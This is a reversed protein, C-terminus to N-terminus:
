RDFIEISLIVGQAILFGICKRFFKIIKDYIGPLGYREKPNREYMLQEWWSLTKKWYM